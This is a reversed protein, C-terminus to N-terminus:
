PQRGAAPAPTASAPKALVVLVVDLREFNVAPSVVVERTKGSGNIQTVTGILFGQPFIGDQGSAVVREGVAVNAASSLLGLRLSNDAFGGTILGAAGSKELWAGAAAAKDILLQVTAAHAAPRGIVRGVVGRGNIVAMDRQVGDDTGRDINITLLGTIPSGAIVRAALTKAVLSRQMNLADELSDVRAGRAREAELQAELELVRSRLAENERSAGSLAFYHSWMGHLGGSVGGVTSQVRAVSGFTAAGLASAGPTVQVQSSILLVHGLSLVVLLTLTRRRPLM